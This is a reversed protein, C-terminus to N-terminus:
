AAGEQQWLRESTSAAVPRSEGTLTEMALLLLAALVFWQYRPTHRIRDETSLESQHMDSIADILQHLQELPVYEGRAVSAVNKLTTVDLKSFVIQGDHLLPKGSGASEPVRAGATSDKTGAGVTYIHIGHEEWALQAAATPDGEHDDGDTVVLLVKTAEEPSRAFMDTARHIAQAIATGGRPASSTDLADLKSRFALSDTTLPLRLSASGAFALLGFRNARRFVTRETLQQRVREKAVALRNPPMDTALMSRSVDMAVVVDVGRVKVKSLYIGWRPGIIGASVFMVALVILGGRLAQKGPSVSRTLLPSLAESAFRSLMTRKRFVSAIVILGSLPVCAGIWWLHPHDFLLTDVDVTAVLTTALAMGALPLGLAWFHWPGLPYVSRKSM